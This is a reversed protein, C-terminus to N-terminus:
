FQRKGVLNLSDTLSVRQTLLEMIEGKTENCDAGLTLTVSQSVQYELKGFFLSLYQFTRLPIFLYSSDRTWFWLQNPASENEFKYTVTVFEPNNARPPFFALSLNRVNDDKSLLSIKLALYCESCSEKGPVCSGFTLKADESEAIINTLTFLLVMVSLISM